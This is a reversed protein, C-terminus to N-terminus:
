DEEHRTPTEASILGEQAAFAAAQQRNRLDLKELINRLHVKVTNVAINLHDAIEQNRWGAAVYELIERERGTLQELGPGVPRPPPSARAFEDLLRTALLPTISTGGEALVHIADHLVPLETDKLLYGRAGARIAEFLDEDQESVTLMCVAAEPADSLIARTAELGSMGPMGMDMLVVDPKTQAAISVADQGNAAEGVLEIDDYDRLLNALGTRFLAHDDVVLLRIRKDESM